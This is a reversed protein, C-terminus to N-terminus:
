KKKKRKDEKKDEKKSVKKSVKKKDEKKDEKKSEKKDEKKSEKKSVKKSEKKDEKKSEKKSVKKPVKTPVKKAVKKAVKKTDKNNSDEDTLDEDTSDEDPSDENTSDENTSDEDTSDKLKSKSTSSEKKFIYYRNLNTITMSKLNIEDSQDYYEQANRMYPEKIKQIESQKDKYINSFLKSEILKLGCNERLKSVLFEKGVLYETQYVGEDSIWSNHVDIAKGTDIVDGKLEFKKIIEFLTKKEGDKTVYHMTFSDNDGLLKVVEDADFTTCMFYGNPAILTSINECFNSFRLKNELFYHIAFQCSILDYKQKGSLYQEIMARNNDSMRTIINRQQEYNFLAGGDAQIFTMPPVDKMKHKMTQYRAIAGDGSSYINKHDIDIGVYSKIGAHYYKGIDGGRGCAYDLITTNNAHRKIMEDKIWNHFARMPKALNSVKQYYVQPKKTKKNEIDSLKKMHKKFTSDKSLIDIDNILVPYQISDWIRLAVTIDNGYKKKHRIVSETKDYRTRIPVWKLKENTTVDNDYYFEVVTKDQIVNGEIDLVNHNSDVFLYTEHGNNDENFRVPIEGTRTRKGSFLTCIVYPKNELEDEKSNDFVYVIKNNKDREFEIYFDITNNNPPKWKYEFLKIDNKITVYPEILPQYILGDLTYPCKIHKDYMYLNWMLVSYKYIENDQLGLVPIFYKSRILLLDKRIKIDHNLNKMNTIMENRYFDILKEISYDSSKYKAFKQQTQGKFIFVDNCIDIGSQLRKIFDTETRLDKTGAKICDFFMFLHRNEEELYIYEGDLITENHKDTDLEIGTYKVDLNTSILYVKRDKIILFYRNGDAKDTVTYKNPLINILHRIELSVPQRGDLAHKESSVNLINQYYSIVDNSETTSIIYNSEQVVKIIREAETILTDMYEKKKNKINATTLELELEYTPQAFNLSNIDTVQKVTTVDIVIKVDKSNEIFYSVREKFRFMIQTDHNNKLNDLEGKKIDKEESLRVRIFFENIDVKNEKSKIKRQIIVNKDDVNIMSKFFIFSSKKSFLTIYKNINDVGNISIRIDNYSIDLITTTKVEGRSILYSLMRTYNELSLRNKEDRSYNFFMFEFEGDSKLDSYLKEIDKIYPTIAKKLQMYIDITM